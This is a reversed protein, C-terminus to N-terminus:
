RAVRHHHCYVSKRANGSSERPGLTVRSSGQCGRVVWVLEQGSGERPDGRESITCIRIPHYLPHKSPTGVGKYPTECRGELGQPTRCSRCVGQRLPACSVSRPAQTEGSSCRELGEFSQSLVQKRALIGIRDIIRDM